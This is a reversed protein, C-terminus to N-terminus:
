LRTRVLIAGGDCPCYSGFMAKAAVADLYRIEILVRLPILSLVDAGGAYRANVYV